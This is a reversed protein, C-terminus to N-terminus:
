ESEELAKLAKELKKEARSTYPQCNAVDGNLLVGAAEVVDLLLAVTQPNFTKSYALGLTTLTMTLEDRRAADCIERLKKIM